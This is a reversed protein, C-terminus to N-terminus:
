ITPLMEVVSTDEPLVTYNWYGDGIIDSVFFEWNKITFSRSFYMGTQIMFHNKILATM